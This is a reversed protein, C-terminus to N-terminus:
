FESRKQRILNNNLTTPQFSTQNIASVGGQLISSQMQSQSQSMLFRNSMQINMLEKKQNELEDQLVSVSENSINSVDSQISQFSLSNNEYGYDIDKEVDEPIMTQQIIQRIKNIENSILERYSTGREPNISDFPNFNQKKQNLKNMMREITEKEINQHTIKSNLEVQKIQISRSRREIEKNFSQDFERMSNSESREKEFEQIIEETNLKVTNSLKEIEIELKKLENLLNETATINKCDAEKLGITMLKTEEDIVSSIRRSLTTHNLEQHQIPVEIIQGIESTISSTFEDIDISDIPASAPVQQKMLNNFEGTFIRKLSSISRNFSYVFDIELSGLPGNFLPQYPRSIPSIFSASQQNQFQFSPQQEMTQQQNPIQQNQQFQIQSITTQNPFTQQQQNNLQDNSKPIFEQQANQQQQRNTDNYQQQM